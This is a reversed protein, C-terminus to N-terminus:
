SAGGGNASPDVYIPRVEIAGHTAGPIKAAWECAADISDCELVFYGGLAEKLETYPGDTVLTDNNRVRVTTATSTSDLEAGDVLVGARQAEESFANYTAYVQEREEASLSEWRTADGYIMALYQM